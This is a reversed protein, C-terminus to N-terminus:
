FIETYGAKILESEIEHLGKKTTEIYGDYFRIDYATKYTKESHNITITYRHGNTDRKTTFKQLM